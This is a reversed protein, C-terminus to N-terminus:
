GRYEEGRLVIGENYLDMAGKLQTSNELQKRYLCELITIAPLEKMGALTTDWDNDFKVVNDGQLEVNMLDQFELLAGETRTM